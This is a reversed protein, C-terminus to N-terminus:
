VTGLDEKVRAMNLGYYKCRQQILSESVGLFQAIQKHTMRCAMLASLISKNFVDMRPEPVQELIDKLWIAKEYTDIITSLKKPDSEGLLLTASKRPLKRHNRAQDSYSSDSVQAHEGTCLTNINNVILIFQNQALFDTFAKRGGFAKIVQGVIVDQDLETPM